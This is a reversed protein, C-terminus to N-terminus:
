KEKVAISNELTTLSVGLTQAIEGRTYGQEAMLRARSTNAPTMLPQDKPTALKRVHDIDAYRLMESLKSPSIANAQIADWESDTIHYEDKDKKIGLRARAKELAQYEMKNLSDDSINPNYAKREKMESKASRQAKRELPAKRRALDIKANISAVEKAYTVRATPSQKTTPTRTSELRARNALDKLKNSHDAYLREMVTGVHDPGSMLSRADVAEALKTSKTTRLVTKGAKNVYTEGTPVWERAGTEKNIPGGEGHPRAKRLPVDKRGKARSILTSAGGVQYKKKLEKINNDNFSAKYDLGHKASDIIVMSHKIARAIEGVPARHISMDTILNSIRGMENQLNKKTMEKMGPYGPYSAIPDFNKLAELAPDSRIKGMPDPIVMVTDGDFDAGSMRKAVEHNIGIADKSNGLLRKAEAQNNNVILEPIEFAGGHPHRILVVREGPHFNPAYVETIKMSSVPLIVHIGQRPLAAAKLHVAANDTSDAFTELLKKKVVPNTLAMINDFDRARREYTMDLQSKALTPSQKSLMQSSLSRSWKEWQGEENVINMVSTVKEKPTGPNDVIQRDIFTGFPNTPDDENEKFVDLKNSTKEKATHFQLDTGEPLGDKYMAMGKLYHKNGVAIRVQAYNSGGLSVDAVGPRVYIMGDAKSGEPGYVVDVRGPSIKKPPHMGQYTRGGDNSIQGAPEVRDEVVALRADSWTVGPAVLIKLNTKNGSLVRPDQVSHVSYGEAKLIAVASTLKNSTVGIRNETGRGIDLFDKSKVEERLVQATTDIIKNKEMEGPRILTRFTPEPIGMQRAAATNSMGKDKLRLATTIEDQKKRAKAVSREARLDVMKMGMAEAIEKDSMGQKKLEDIRGLLTPNRQDSETGGDGWGSSGWPYRGSHRPTGYHAMYEEEDIKL